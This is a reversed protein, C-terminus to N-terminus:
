LFFESCQVSNKLKFKFKGNGFHNMQQGQNGMTHWNSKLSDIDSNNNNNNINNNNHKLTYGAGPTLNRMDGDVNLNNFIMGDFSSDSHNTNM